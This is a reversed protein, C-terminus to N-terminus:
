PEREGVAMQHEVRDQRADGHEADVDDRGGEQQKQGVALALEHAAGERLIERRGHHLPQRLIRCRQREAALRALDGDEEAVDAAECRQRLLHVRLLDGAEQVAEQRRHGVHQELRAGRDVLIDAVGDHSRSRAARRCRVM